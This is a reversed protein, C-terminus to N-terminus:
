ILKNTKIKIHEKQLFWLLSYREGQLIPTIEHEITVDFIYTNGVVKDLLIEDPNYLKFDGAKFDDNLLVGVAYIRNDKNDNHKDFWDMENFKHFHIVKKLNIIKADTFEEVFNKLKLFIWKTDESYKLSISKYKRDKKDWNRVNTNQWIISDCELKTFLVKQIISM